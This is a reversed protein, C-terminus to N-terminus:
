DRERKRHEDEEDDDEDEDDDKEGGKGHNRKGNKRGLRDPFLAAADSELWALEESTVRAEPNFMVYDWGPMEGEGVEERSEKIWKARTRRSVRDWASFNLEDRGQRIHEGMVISVIPLHSYWPFRTENSHCDFCARRLVEDSRASLIVGQYREPPNDRSYALEGYVWSAALVVLVLAFGAFAFKRM